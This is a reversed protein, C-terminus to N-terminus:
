TDRRPPWAWEGPQIETGEAQPVNFEAFAGLESPTFVCLHVHTDSDLTPVQNSAVNEPILTELTCTVIAARMAHAGYRGRYHVIRGITPKTTM